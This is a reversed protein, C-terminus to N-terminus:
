KGSSKTAGAESQGTQGVRMVKAVQLRAREAALGAIFESHREAADMMPCHM